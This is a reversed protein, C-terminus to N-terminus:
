LLMNTKLFPLRDAKEERRKEERRKEERRKEKRKKEKKIRPRFKVFYNSHIYTFSSNAM